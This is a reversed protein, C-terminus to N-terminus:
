ASLGYQCPNKGGALVTALECALSHSPVSEDHANAWARAAMSGYTAEFTKQAAPPQDALSQCDRSVALTGSGPWRPQIPQKRQLITVAPNDMRVVYNPSQLASKILNTWDIPGRVVKSIYIASYDIGRDAAWKDLQAVSTGDAGLVRVKDFLCTARAFRLDPLWETGQPTLVSPRDAVVPFWEGALDEEWSWTTSLVLFRSSPPTNAAVWRMAQQDAPTLSNLTYPTTPAGSWTAFVLAVAAAFAALAAGVPATRRGRRWRGRMERLWSGPHSTPRSRAALLVGPIVVDALGVAALLGFPLSGESESSRPLVLFILPLWLPLFLAGRALCAAAGVIVLVGLGGLLVSNPVLFQGLRGLQDGLSTWEGTLSASLLPQFGHQRVVTAWWPATLAVMVVGVAATLALSRWSRSCTLFMLGLSFAVFIGLELHSALALAALLGTVALRRVTPAAFLDYAFALCWVAFLFGFSRTLGGGMIMWLYSRPVLAFVSAGLLASWRSPAVKRALAAVGLVTGLNAVLPLYRVLALMPVRAAANILAVLYFSLPPYAFPIAEGNYSTVAPLAFHAARIDRSMALFMGGDNLPFQSHLFYPVRAALALLLAAAAALLWPARDSWVLAM